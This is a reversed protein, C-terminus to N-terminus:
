RDSLLTGSKVPGSRPNRDLHPRDALLGKASVLIQLTYDHLAACPDIDLARSGNRM